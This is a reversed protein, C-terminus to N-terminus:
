AGVPEKVALFYAGSTTLDADTLHRFRPALAERCLSSESSVKQEAVIRFGHQVLLGTHTSYPQRNLLYALRGRILKWRFDSHAWHGNWTDATHHCKFDVQHSLFGRPALWLNMARYTADLDDVHELVAQSFILDVSGEEIVAADNWPVCYRILSGAMRPDALSARIHDLRSDALAERMRPATLIHEPFAYSDLQPKVRPFEDPGPIAEQSRFLAVLEEFIQLNRQTSGFDVVDFANYKSSGSLLAAVGIGLSDGPGLEAIVAPFANLGVAEAQVLHRLWVSYCYRASDTGGTKTGVYNRVIPMYTALGRLM